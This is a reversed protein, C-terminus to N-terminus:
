NTDVFQYGLFESFKRNQTSHSTKNAHKCLLETEIVSFSNCTSM